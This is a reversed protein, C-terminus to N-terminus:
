YICKYRIDTYTDFVGIAIPSQYTLSMAGRHDLRHWWEATIAPSSCPVSLLGHPVGLQLSGIPHLPMRCGDTLLARRKDHMSIKRGRHCLDAPMALGRWGVALDGSRRKERSCPFGVSRVLWCDRLRAVRNLFSSGGTRLLAGM